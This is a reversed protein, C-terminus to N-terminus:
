RVSAEPMGGAGWLGAGPATAPPCPLVGAVELMGRMERSAIAVLRQVSREEEQQTFEQLINYINVKRQTSIEPVQLCCILANMVVSPETTAKETIIVSALRKRMDFGAGAADTKTSESEMINLINTVQQFTGSDEPELPGLDETEESPDEHSETAAEAMEEELEKRQTREQVSCFCVVLFLETRQGICM